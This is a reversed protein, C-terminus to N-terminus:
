IIGSLYFRPTYNVGYFEVKYPRREESREAFEFPPLPFVPPLPRPALKFTCTLCPPGAFTPVPDAPTAACLVALVKAAAEERLEEASKVPIFSTPTVFTGFTLLDELPYTMIMGSPTVLHRYRTM